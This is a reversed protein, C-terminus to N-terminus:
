RAHKLNFVVVVFPAIQHEELEWLGEVSFLPMQEM